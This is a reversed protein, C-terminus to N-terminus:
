VTVKHEVFRCVKVMCAYPALLQFLNQLCTRLEGILRQIRCLFCSLCQPAPQISDLLLTVAQPVLCALSRRGALSVYLWVGAIGVLFNSPLFTTWGTPTRGLAAFAATWVQNLILRHVLLGIAKIVTGAVLRGLILRRM